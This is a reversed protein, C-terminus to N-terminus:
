HKMWYGRTLFGVVAAVVFYGTKAMYGQKTDIRTIENGHAEIKDYIDKRDIIYDRQLNNSYEMHKDVRGMHTLLQANLERREDAMLVNGDWREM